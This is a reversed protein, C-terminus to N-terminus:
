WGSMDVHACRAITFGHEQYFLQNNSFSLALIPLHREQAWDICYVLPESRAMKISEIGRAYSLFSLVITMLSITLQRQECDSSSHHDSIFSSKCCYKEPRVAQLLEETWDLATTSVDHSWDSTPVASTVDFNDPNENVTSICIGAVITNSTTDTSKLLTSQPDKLRLFLRSMFYDLNNTVPHYADFLANGMLEGSDLRSELRALADVDKAAAHEILFRPNPM